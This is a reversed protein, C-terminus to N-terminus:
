DSDSNMQLCKHKDEECKQDSSEEWCEECYVNTGEKYTKLPAGFLDLTKTYKKWVAEFEENRGCGTCEHSANMGRERKTKRQFSLIPTDTYVYRVIFEISIMITLVVMMSIMYSLIMSFSYLILSSSDFIAMPIAFSSLIISAAVTESEMISQLYFHYKCVPKESINSPDVIWMTDTDYADFECSEM